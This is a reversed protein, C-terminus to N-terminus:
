FAVGLTFPVSWTIKDKSTTDASKASHIDVAVGIDLAAEGVNFSVGPNVRMNFTNGVSYDDKGFCVPGDAVAGNGSWNYYSYDVNELSLYPTFGSLAYSAKVRYTLYSPDSDEGTLRITVPFRFQVSLAGTSYKGYNDIVVGNLDLGGEGNDDFRLRPQVFGYFGTANFDAGVTLIKTKNTTTGGDVLTIREDRWGLGFSMSGMSYKATVGYAAITTGTDTKDIFAKGWGPVAGFDLQLGEIPTVTLNVGAGEIGSYNSWRHDWGAAQAVSSGCPTKWWNIQETYLYQGVNGVSVKLMDVPKFWMSFSRFRVIPDKGSNGEYDLYNTESEQAWLRFAAGAQEGSYSFQLLDADKQNTNNLTMFSTDGNGGAALTGEQYLKASADAAFAAGAVMAAM